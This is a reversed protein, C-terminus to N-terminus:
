GRGLGDRRFWVDIRAGSPDGGVSLGGGWREALERAIALGLGSGGAPAGRGRYFRETVRSVEDAPIGPGHDAVSVGVRDGHDTARVEIPGPAYRLANDILV